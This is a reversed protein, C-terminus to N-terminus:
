TTRKQASALKAYIGNLRLLEDHTGEEKMKGRDVVAIKESNQITSLRHAISLCTRGTRAKDLAAQVVKESKNDLASTAEDLLLIKPSRILARAIAIRQKQGGSLQSGKAGCSTEYGQPLSKILEHINATRAVREIEDQTVERSSDGYAINDRISLNFLVPEQQVLGMISRLWRINLVQIDHGDLLIKGKLPDYFRQLLAITTSKGSGSPGVLATTSSSLCKLSFNRLIRLTPRTPYRFYVDDFEINGIVEKLIIGSEDYPNIQSQRKNLKMIRLAAQQAKSYGPIMAMSRGVTMMAFTIVAFVRFVNDFTMEHNDVLKSGYSFTASHLFYMISNAIAAGLGVLHLQCKQKKFEQNFANEYLDIFHKEQHLAVVTRIQEIAQTAYKLAAADSSLRTVLAGVSNTEYDFYGIEQRIIASFTLKRMRLTLEEGSKAFGLNSLFQAVGGVFGILFMLGAYISTLHEQKKLDPEGFLGYIQAFFLAFIPQIAGFILSFVAGMLIWPWEPANLKFIQFVFPTRSRKKKKKQADPATKDDEKDNEDFDDNSAISQKSRIKHFSRERVFEREVEDDEKDIDPDVEKEKEKQMQATVLEYYLGKYEMLDDYTGSEVVCGRELGIILDANRITSLRHAIVITTRGAKAKDLADQVVRESTNDLASTAEDLLLIKPNSILARAIAVRQKQGGSLKDGSLTKYNEPLAMIFEHANAMKAAAQVEEDTADQKGFRINEEISGTFLVPEQSVIGIHSRLWAVNLTKIDKGDLLVRGQDPDYFRQILQITTSKGCGSAGVLAVTKGSPIKMNINKLIPVDQRAPYTFTLNQLEIDGVISTPIEGESKFADIKSIRSIIDFVYGGSGSAEAFAQINPVIQSISFTSQLCSVFIVIVAGADYNQCENRVLYPGYWFTIAFSIYIAVQAAAQCLGMYLGKKIGIQKAELLNESFRQEEKKQGGFATVTRISGLVEQAVASAKSFAKIEKATYKAIVRMTINFAIVTLPSLSIFVLALKWGTVFAFVLGGILRCILSIFEAKKDGLGDRLKDLDSVLRNSLEGPNLKDFWGMEQNMISRFLAFRIRRVQREAAIMWLSFGIWYCLISACGLIGYWKIMGRLESLVDATSNEPKVACTANIDIISTLNPLVSPISAKVLSTAVNRYVLMMLPFVAGTGMCAITGIFMFLVDLKDAFKYIEFLKLRRAPSQKKADKKQSGLFQDEETKGDTEHELFSVVNNELNGDIENFNNEDFLNKKLETDENSITQVS